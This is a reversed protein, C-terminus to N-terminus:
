RSGAPLPCTRRGTADQSAALGTRCRRALVRVELCAVRNLSANAAPEAVVAAVQPGEFADVAFPTEDQGFGAVVARVDLFAAALDRDAEVAAVGLQQGPEGFASDNGRGDYWRSCSPVTVIM